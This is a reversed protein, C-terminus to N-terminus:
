KRALANYDYELSPLTHKVGGYASFLAQSSKVIESPLKSSRLNVASRIAADVILKSGSM